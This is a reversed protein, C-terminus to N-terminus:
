IARGGDVDNSYLNFFLFNSYIKALLRLYSTDGTSQMAIEVISQGDRKLYLLFTVNKVAIQVFQKICKEQVM